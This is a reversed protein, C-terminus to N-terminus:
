IAVQNICNDVKGNKLRNEHRLPSAAFVLKMTKAKVQGPISGM